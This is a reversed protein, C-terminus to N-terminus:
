KVLLKDDPKISLSRRHKVGLKSFIDKYQPTYGFHSLALSLPMYSYSKVFPYVLLPADKPVPTSKFEKFDPLACEEFWYTILDEACNPNSEPENAYFVLLMRYKPTSGYAISVDMTIAEVEYPPFNGFATTFVINPSHYSNYLYDVLLEELNQLHVKHNIKKKLKEFDILAFRIQGKPTSRKLNCIAKEWEFEFIENLNQVDQKKHMTSIKPM